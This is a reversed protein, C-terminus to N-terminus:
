YHKLVFRDSESTYPLGDCDCQSPHAHLLQVDDIQARRFTLFQGIQHLFSRHSGIASPMCLDQQQSVLSFLPRGKPVGLYRPLYPDRRPMDLPHALATHQFPELGGQPPAFAAPFPGRYQVTLSLCPQDGDGTAVRRCPPRPPRQM